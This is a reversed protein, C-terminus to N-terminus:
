FMVDDVFCYVIYQMTPLPPDIGLWLYCTSFIKHLRLTHNKLYALLRISLGVSM